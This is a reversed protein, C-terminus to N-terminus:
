WGCKPTEVSTQKWLCKGEAVATRCQVYDISRARLSVYIRWEVASNSYSSLLQTWDRVLSWLHIPKKNNESITEKSYGLYTM